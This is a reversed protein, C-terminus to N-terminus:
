KIWKLYASRVAAALLPAFVITVFEFAYRSSPFVDGGFWRSQINWLIVYSGVIWIASFFVWKRFESNSEWLVIIQAEDRGKESGDIHKTHVSPDYEGSCQIHIIEKNRMFLRDFYKIRKGCVVCINM